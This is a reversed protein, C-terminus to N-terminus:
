KEKRIGSDNNKLNFNSYNSGIIAVLMFFPGGFYGSTRTFFILIIIYILTVQILYMQKTLLETSFKYKKILKFFIFVLYSFFLIGFIGFESVIKAGLFSGDEANLSILNLGELLERAGSKPLPSCGMMNLGLGFGYTRYLNIWADELGQLFVLSSINTSSDIDSLIGVVRDVTPMFFSNPILFIFAAILTVVIIRLISTSKIRLFLIFLMWGLILIFLTSSHSLFVMMFLAILGFIQVKRELSSLIVVICPFVSFAVHSPETFFGSLKWADRYRATDLFFQPFLYELLFEFFLVIIILQSIKILGVWIRPSSERGISWALISSVLFVPLTLLFKNHMDECGGLSFSLTSILLSAFSIILLFAAPILINKVHM